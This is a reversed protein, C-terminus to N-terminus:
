IAKKQLAEKQFKPNLFADYDNKNALYKNKNCSTTNIIILISLIAFAFFKKVTRRYKVDNLM